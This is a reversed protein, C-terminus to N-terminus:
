GGSGGGGTGSPSWPTTEVGNEYRWILELAHDTTTAIQNTSSNWFYDTRSAYESGYVLRIPLLPLNSGQRLASNLGSGGWGGTIIVAIALPAILPLVRRYKPVSSM